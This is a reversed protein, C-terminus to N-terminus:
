RYKFDLVNKSGCGVCYFQPYESLYDVSVDNVRQCKICWYRLALRKGWVTVVSRWFRVRFPTRALM